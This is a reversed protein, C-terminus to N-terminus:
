EAGGEKKLEADYAATEAEVDDAATSFIRKRAQRRVELDDTEERLDRLEQVVRGTIERLRAIHKNRMEPTAM